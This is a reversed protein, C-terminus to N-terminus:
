SEEQELNITLTEIIDQMSLVGILDSGDMVMVRRVDYRVMLKAVYKVNMEKHVQIAPKSYIDYVNLLDVDGEEAVIAELIDKYTVIGYADHENAREIIVSRLNDERMQKMIDRVKVFPSSFAVENLPKLVDKVLLM